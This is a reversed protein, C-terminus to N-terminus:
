WSGGGDSSSGSSSNSSSGSGSSPKDDGWSGGGDSSGGSDSGYNKSSNQHTKHHRQTASPTASVPIQQNLNVSNVREAASALMPNKMLNQVQTQAKQLTELKAFFDAIEHALDVNTSPHLFEAAQSLEDAKKYLQDLQPEMEKVKKKNAGNEVLGNWM